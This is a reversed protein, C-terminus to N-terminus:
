RMQRTIRRVRLEATTAHGGAVAADRAAGADDESAFHALDVWRRGDPHRREVSWYTILGDTTGLAKDMLVFFLDQNAGGGAGM